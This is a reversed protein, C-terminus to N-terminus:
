GWVMGEAVDEYLRLYDRAMRAAAWRHEADARCAARDLGDVQDVARSLAAQMEGDPRVLLGTRGPRLIEPAAGHTTSIVPTGCALAEVTTLGFAERPWPPCPLTLLARARRYLERKAEHHGVAPLTVLEVNRLGAAEERYRAEWERHDPAAPRWALVFRLDPRARALALIRDVGKAPHPRGVYLLYGDPPDQGPRYFDLDIGYRVVRVDRLGATRAARAAARSLVVVNTPPWPLRPNGFGVGNRTCLRPLDPAQLSALEYAMCTPSCDHLVDCRRIVWGYWDWADADADPSVGGYSGRICHLRVGEPPSSGGPAFLHVEHGLRALERALWWTTVESGYEPPPCPYASGAVLAIRM